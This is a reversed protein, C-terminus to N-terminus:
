PVTHNPAALLISFSNLISSVSGHFIDACCCCSWPHMQVSPYNGDWHYPCGLSQSRFWESAHEESHNPREHSTSTHTHTHTHAYKRQMNAHGQTNAVWIYIYIYISIQMDSRSRYLDRIYIYIYIYQNIGNYIVFWNTQSSSGM